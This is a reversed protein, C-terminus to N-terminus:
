GSVEQLFSGGGVVREANAGVRDRLARDSTVLVFPGALDAIVDDASHRGSGLLDPAQEPPDGDFVVLLEAGERLAWARSLEVLETKSVNPWTSRRVNEADVVFRPQSQSQVRRMRLSSTHPRRISSSSM